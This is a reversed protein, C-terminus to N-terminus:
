AGSNEKEKENQEFNELMSKYLDLCFARVTARDPSKAASTTNYIGLDGNFPKLYVGWCGERRSVEVLVNEGDFAELVHKKFMVYSMM